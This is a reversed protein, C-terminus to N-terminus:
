IAIKVHKLKEQPLYQSALDAIIEDVLDENWVSARDFTNEPLHLKITEQKSERETIIQCNEFQNEYIHAHNIVHHLLGVKVGLKQALIAQLLSFGAIDHPLGFYIDESRWVTTLNLEGNIINILFLPVCPVNPKKTTGLADTAPDWGVIVCQRTSPDKELSEVALKLQDRGFHKRWMYGYSNSVKDPNDFDGFSDWGKTYKRLLNLDQESSLFWIIEAIFHKINIDRLSLIPFHESPKIHFSFFGGQIIKINHGTRNNLECVDSELINKVLLQYELDFSNM